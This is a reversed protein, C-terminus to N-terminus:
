RLAWEIGKEGGGGFSEIYRAKLEAVPTDWGKERLLPQVKESFESYYHFSGKGNQPKPEIENLKIKGWCRKFLAQIESHLLEYSTRLTEKDENIAVEKQAIIDGTDIREDMYHITVGKPTDELFSWVNPFSGRNYPLYSIHLNVARGGVLGIMEKSLIHRYNYSIIFDPRIDDLQSLGILDESRMVADGAKTLWEALSGPNTGLMLIKM